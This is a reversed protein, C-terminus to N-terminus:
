QSAGDGTTYVAIIRYPGPEAHEFRGRELADKAQEFNDFLCHRNVPLEEALSNCSLPSCGPDTHGSYEVVDFGELQKDAPVRVDTKFSPEPTFTMWKGTKEDYEEEYAEYYFLTMGSLDIKASKAIDEIIAPEDFLWYGNHQWYQIYNAFDESICGSLSFFDTIASAELWDTRAAVTKYMYGIPTMVTPELGNVIIAHYGFLAVRRLHASGGQAERRSQRGFIRSLIPREQV